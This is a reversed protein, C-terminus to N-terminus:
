NSRKQILSPSGTLSIMACLSAVGVPLLHSVRSSPSVIYDLGFKPNIFTMSTDVQLNRLDNDTGQVTYDVQRVQIEGRVNVKGGALRQDGSVFAYQDFKEGLNDYYRHQPSITDGGAEMWIPNGFHEGSYQFAGLGFQIGGNENARSGQFIGGLYDNDLWRRRIVNSTTVTDEAM